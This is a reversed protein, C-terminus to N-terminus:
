NIERKIKDKKKMLHIHDVFQNYNNLFIEYHHVGDIYKLYNEDNLGSVVNLNLQM